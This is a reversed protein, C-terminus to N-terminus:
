LQNLSLDNPVTVTQRHIERNLMSLILVSGVPLQYPVTFEGGLYAVTLLTRREGSPLIAELQVSLPYANRPITYKFLDFIEGTGLNVPAAVTLYVRINDTVMSQGAPEQSVVTGPQENGRVSRLTFIFNIGSRSIEELAASVSLGTLTPVRIMTNEQGRSVVFELVLPGSIATGPEPYQQLVTGVPATSYEYMFPEKLSLLPQTATSFLTQIDMRVENIPRGIYNEVRNIIIGQSVVLKIRRGAKVITGVPPDQELIIGRDQTSQSYRLQIRPYLEKEQLELLAATVDKGQVDPVLTQEAGQIFHFFVSLAIVGVFVMLCVTMFFFFGLQNPKKTEITDLFSKNQSM